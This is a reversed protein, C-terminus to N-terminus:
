IEPIIYIAKKEKMSGTSIAYGKKSYKEGPYGVGIVEKEGKLSYSVEGYYPKYRRNPEGIYRVREGCVEKRFPKYLEHNLISQGNREFYGYAFTGHNKKASLYNDVITRESLVYYNMEGYNKISDVCSKYIVYSGNEEAIYGAKVNLLASIKSKGVPIQRAGLIKDYCEEKEHKKVVDRKSAAVLRYELAYDDIEDNMSCLGLIQVNNRILGRMTSGPIAYKGYMNQYFREPEGKKEVGKSVMIPTEATIEYEIEGTLKGETLESHSAIQEPKYEHVVSSFPVFNYPAPVYDSSDNRQNNKHFNNNRSNSNGNRNGNFRSNFNNYAM